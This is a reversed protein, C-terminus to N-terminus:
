GCGPTGCCGGAGHGAGAGGGSSIVQVRSMMRSVPTDPPTDGVPEDAADCLAGWTKISTSMSHLVDLSVGNAECSYTYIPM